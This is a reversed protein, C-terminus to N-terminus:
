MGPRWKEGGELLRKAQERMAERDKQSFMADALRGRMRGYEENSERSAKFQTHNWKELEEGKPVEPWVFPKEMEVTMRKVARPRFWRKIQPKIAGPKGERVPQQEIYARIGLSRINYAHYLYDRLDLKNM